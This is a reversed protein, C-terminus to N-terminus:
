LGLQDSSSVFQQLGIAVGVRLGFAMILTMPLIFNRSFM